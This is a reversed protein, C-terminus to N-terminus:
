EALYRQLRLQGIKGVRAPGDDGGIGPRRGRLGELGDGPADAVRQGRERSCCGRASRGSTRAPSSVSYPPPKGAAAAYKASSAPRSEVSGAGTVNSALAYM